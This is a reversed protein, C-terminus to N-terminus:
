SLTGQVLIRVSGDEGLTDDRLLESIDKLDEPEGTNRNKHTYTLPTFIQRLECTKVPDELWDKGEAM